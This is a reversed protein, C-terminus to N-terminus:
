NPLWWYNADDSPPLNAIEVINDGSRTLENGRLTHLSYGHNRMASQTESLDSHYRLLCDNIETIVIPRHTSLIRQAGKIAQPEFGEIDMKIISPPEIDLDDLRIMPISGPGVVHNSSRQDTTMGISGPKDGVAVPHISVDVGNIAINTRLIDPQPEFAHVIAAPERRKVSLAFLGDHAGVDYFVSGPRIFEYLKQRTAIETNGGADINGGVGLANFDYALRIGEFEYFSQGPSVCFTGDVGRASMLARMSRALVNMGVRYPKYPFAM